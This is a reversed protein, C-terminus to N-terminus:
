CNDHTEIFIYYPVNIEKKLAKIVESTSRIFAKKNIHMAGCIFSMSFHMESAKDYFMTPNKREQERGERGRM